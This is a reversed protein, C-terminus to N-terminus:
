KLIAQLKAELQAETPEVLITGDEFVITPVSRFGNNTLIVFKEGEEDRDIDVWKYILQNRDFFRRARSCDGCWWTGFVTITTDM